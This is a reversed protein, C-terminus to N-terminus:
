FLQGLDFKQTEEESNRVNYVNEVDQLVWKAIM